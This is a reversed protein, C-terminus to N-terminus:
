NCYGRDVYIKSSGSLYYCGGRPGRIYRVTQKYPQKQTSSRNTTPSHSSRAPSITSQTQESAYDYNPEYKYYRRSKYTAIDANVINIKDLNDTLDNKDVFGEIGQLEVKVFPSNDGFGLIKLYSGLYVKGITKSKEAPKDKLLSFKRNVFLFGQVRESYALSDEYVKKVILLSDALKKQEIKKVTELSDKTLKETLTLKKEYKRYEKLENDYYETPWDKDLAKLTSIDDMYDPIDLHKNNKYMKYFNELQNQINVVYGKANSIIKDEPVRLIQISLKNIEIESISNEIAKKKKKDKLQGAIGKGLGAGLGVVSTPNIQSFTQATLCIFFLSVVLKAKHKMIKPNEIIAWCSIPLQVFM